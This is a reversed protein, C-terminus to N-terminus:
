NGRLIEEFESIGICRKNVKCAQLRELFFNNEPDKRFEELCTDCCSDAYWIGSKQYYIGEEVHKAFAIEDETTLKLLWAKNCNECICIIRSPAKM